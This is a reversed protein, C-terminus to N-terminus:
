CDMGSDVVRLGPTFVTNEKAMWVNMDTQTGCAVASPTAIGEGKVEANELQTAPQLQPEFDPEPAESPM